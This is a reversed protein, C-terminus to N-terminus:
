MGPLTVPGCCRAGNAPRSVGPGPVLEGCLAGVIPLRRRHSSPENCTKMRLSAGSLKQPIIAPYFVAVKLPKTFVRCTPPRADQRPTNDAAAQCHKKVFRPEQTRWTLFAQGRALAPSCVSPPSGEPPPRSARHLVRARHPTLSCSFSPSLNQGPTFSPPSCGLPHSVRSPAWVCPSLEGDVSLSRM